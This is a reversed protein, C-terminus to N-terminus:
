AQRSLLLIFTFNSVKTSPSGFAEKETAVVSLQLPPALWKGPNSRKVWSGLRIISLVLYQSVDLVM